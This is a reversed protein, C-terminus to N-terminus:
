VRDRGGSGSGTPPSGVAEMGTPASRAIAPARRTVALFETLHAGPRIHSEEEGYITRVPVWDIPWGERLAIAIMEVEFAFGQETSDLSAAMLRRGILRYGCQNDPVWHGLAASLVLTGLSNALRRVLPMHRFDRRGVILETTQGAVTRKAYEGVFAPIESPDHQGDGDLTIAAEAGRELAARFGNRLAAGKGQNPEQRIVTAGAETAREGTDDPSGDDIVIVPLHRAAARVVSAIRPGERHAPVLAVLGSTAM